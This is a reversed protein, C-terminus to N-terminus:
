ATEEITDSIWTIAAYAAPWGITTVALIAVHLLEERKLGCELAQRTASHVAGEHRTGIAIGLKALRRTKEELPGGAEHCKEGLQAFAHAIEPYDREFNLIHRPVSSPM